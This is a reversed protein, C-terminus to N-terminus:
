WGIFTQFTGMATTWRDLSAIFLNSPTGNELVVDFQIVPDGDQDLYAQGFRNKANWENIKQLTLKPKVTYSTSFQISKCNANASCGYFYISFNAGSAGSKIRPDGSSDTDLTAKYGAEQLAAVLTAPRASDVTQAMVPTGVASAAIGMAILFGNSRM